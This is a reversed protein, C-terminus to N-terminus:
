LDYDIDLYPSGGMGGDFGILDWLIIGIIVLNIMLLFSFLQSNKGIKDEYKILLYLFITTIGLTIM